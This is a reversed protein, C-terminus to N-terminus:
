KKTAYRLNIWGKGSKLKGWLEGDPSKQEEVITLTMTKKIVDTIESNADPLKRINLEHDYIKKVDVKVKYNEFRKLGFGDMIGDAIAQAVGAVNANLRNMDDINSIFCTELLTHSVGARRVANQVVLGSPYNRQTVVIGDWAKSFGLAYLNELIKDEVSHGKETQDIFVLSGHVSPNTSANLHVECVYDYNHFDRQFNGARGDKVANHDMPYVDINAGKIRGKLENVIARNREYEQFGNGIAGPDGAGHGAILLINM